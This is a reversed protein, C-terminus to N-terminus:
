KKNGNGNGKSKGSNGPSATKSTAPVATKTHGPNTTAPHHPNNTNKTWGKHKGNDHTTAVRGNKHIVCSTTLLAMAALLILTKM